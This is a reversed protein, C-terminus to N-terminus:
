AEAPSVPSPEVLDVADGLALGQERAIKMVDLLLRHRTENEAASNTVDMYGNLEVEVGAKGVGCVRVDLHLSTFRDDSIMRQRVSDTFRDLKEPTAGGTVLLKFNALRHRRTGLNDITSEVLKSNPIVMVSDEATRIRTSRIGVEEVAGEFKDTRIWDGRKFPRDVLLIGAGFINSLAERSAFAFALGSIGLGALMSTTPISLYYAVGLAAFVVVLCRLIAQSIAIVIDDSRSATRDAWENIRRGGSKILKWLVVASALVLIVGAVPMTFRRTSAPIGLLEPVPKILLIMIVARLSWLFLPSHREQDRSYRDIWRWIVISGIWSIFSAILLSLLAFLNQWVESHPIMGKRLLMPVHRGVWLRLDFYPSKRIKHIEPDLPSPLSTSTLFIGPINDVTKASFKWRTATGEGEPLLVISDDGQVFHVYPERTLGENPVSQLDSFGIKSLVEYLCQASHLGDSNRLFEPISSLDMVSLAQEIGKRDGQEMGWQFTRIADRPNGCKLYSDSEPVKGGHIALLPSKLASLEEPSPMEIKWGGDAGKILTLPLVAESGAQRLKLEFTDGPCEEPISSLHFTTLDVAEFLERVMQLKDVMSLPATIRRFDLVEMAKQWNEEYGDYVLNCARLFTRMAKRPSGVESPPLISRSSVRVGSWWEGSDDSGVFRSDEDKTLTFSGSLSGESWRGRLRSGSGEEQVKGEIKGKILPYEGTVSNGNQQLELIMGGYYLGELNGRHIEWTGSWDAPTSAGLSFPCLLLFLGAVIGFRSFRPPFAQCFKGIM